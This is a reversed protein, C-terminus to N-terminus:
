YSSYSGIKRERGGKYRRRLGRGLMQHGRQRGKEVALEGIGNGRGRWGEM